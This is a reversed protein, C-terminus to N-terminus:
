RYKSLIADIQAQEAPTALKYAARLGLKEADLRQQASLDLRERVDRRLFQSPSVESQGLRRLIVNAEETLKLLEAERTDDLNITIDTAM